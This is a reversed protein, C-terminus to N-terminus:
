RRPYGPSRRAPRHDTLSHAWGPEHAGSADLGWPGYELAGAKLLARRVDHKAWSIAPGSSDVTANPNAGVALLLDAIERWDEVAAVFLGAGHHAGNGEPANPDAGHDLLLQVLSLNGATETATKKLPSSSGLDTRPPRFYRNAAFLLAEPNHCTKPQIPRSQALWYCGSDDPKSALM